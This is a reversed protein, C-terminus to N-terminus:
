NPLAKIKDKLRLAKQKELRATENAPDLELVSDWSRIAGDLDQRAMAAHANRSHTDILRKSIADAQAAGNPHGLAASKKFDGLAKELMGAKAAADGSRYAAEAAPVSTEAAPAPATTAPRPETRASATAAPPPAKGPIRLTQGEGVQRPVKIGNYRALIHFAYIDGLFRGAIRSLTDGGRVVYPFSEKGLTAMPDDNMQRMLNQALKNGPDLALANQLENRAQEENGVELLEIAGQATKQAQQQQAPTPPATPQAMGAGAGAPSLPQVTTPAGSASSASTNAPKSGCGAVLTLLAATLVLSAFPATAIRTHATM